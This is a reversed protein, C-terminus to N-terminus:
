SNSITKFPSYCYMTIFYRKKKFFFNLSSYAENVQGTKQLKKILSQNRGNIFIKNIYKIKKISELIVYRGYGTGIIGANIIM